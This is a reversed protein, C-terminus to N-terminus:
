IKIWNENYENVDTKNYPTYKKFENSAGKVYCYVKEIACVECFQEIRYM